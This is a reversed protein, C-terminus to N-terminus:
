PVFGDPVFEAAIARRLEGAAPKWTLLVPLSGPQPGCRLDGLSEDRYTIVSIEGFRGGARVTGETTGVVFDVREGRCDLSELMGFSRREDALTIRLFPRAGPPLPTSPRTSALQRFGGPPAAARSRKLLEEVNIGLAHMQQLHADAEAKRNTRLFMLALAQHAQLVGQQRRLANELRLKAEEDRGMQALLDGLWGDAEPDSLSVAEDTVGNVLDASFNVALASYKGNRIYGLVRLQLESVSMGYTAQVAAEVEAGAALKRALELVEKSRSSQFAHHVVAWSQAYLLLRTSTEGLYESSRVTAAFMQPLPMSRQQLLTAHAAVPYGILASREGTIRLTSYFEAMGENLWLPADPFVGRMLLHSYEHFVSRFSAEGRDLRVAIYVTDPGEVFMGASDVVRGSERPMFPEFSKGNRFVLITLPAAAQRSAPALNLRTAIDRFQEFRLAVDRLERASVDGILQFHETHLFRWEADASVPITLLILAALRFPLRV